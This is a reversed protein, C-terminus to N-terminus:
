CAAWSLVDTRAMFTRSGRIRRAWGRTRCAETQNQPLASALQSRSTISLTAFVKRLHYAVTAPSIYLQAAIEANSAGRGAPRDLADAARASQGSRVAAEILEPLILALWAWPMAEADSVPESRFAQLARKLVPTGATYGETILLALGDLLLDPGAAPQPSAPAWRAAEAVERAGGGVALRGTFVATPLADLYMARAM